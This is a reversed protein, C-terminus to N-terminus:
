DAEGPAALPDSPAECAHCVAHPMIPTLALGDPEGSVDITRMATLSPLAVVVVKDAQTAAVFATGDGAALIGVPVAGTAASASGRSSASAAIPVDVAVRATQRRSLVDLAVLESSGACSVLATGGPTMAIRIPQGPVALTALLEHSQADLVTVTGAERAGVWVERGDPTLAIAESGAGTPLDALKRLGPLDIVTTSGGGRNTVFARSGDPTVAVMHSGAQGTAIQSVVRAARPDVLLLAGPEETTVAIRDAAYWAVGHPRQWRGLEIRRLERPHELDLIILSTGPRDRTGYGSVAAFRGDPSRSIEHPAFGVPVSSIRLGSGPDVFDVAGASKRVVLLTEAGAAAPVAALLAGVLLVASARRARAICQHLGIM